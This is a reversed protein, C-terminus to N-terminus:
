QNGNGRFKYNSKLDKQTEKKGRKELAKWRSAKSINESERQRNVLFVFNNAKGQVDFPQKNTERGLRLTFNHGQGIKGAGRQKKITDIIPSEETSSILQM